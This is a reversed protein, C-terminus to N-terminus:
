CLVRQQERCLTMFNAILQAGQETMISEPHFQIGFCLYHRHKIAMILGDPTQADIQLVDPLNQPDIVLSHYRGASFPLKMKEFLEKRRHFILSKKGHVIQHARIIQAGFAIGIAQHGLCVGLIPITAAFRQILAVCVGADEPRGPGPSIVIADPKLAAVQDLTIEDNRVVKVEEDFQLLMQYLNYTFSDYNDILLIM